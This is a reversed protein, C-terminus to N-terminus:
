QHHYKIINKVHQTPSIFHQKNLVLM